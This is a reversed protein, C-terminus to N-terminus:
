YIPELDEGSKKMLFLAWDKIEGGGWRDVVHYKGNTVGELVWQAGDFGQGTKQSPLNWFNVKELAALLIGTDKADIPMTIKKMLKGPEYGGEGDTKKTLLESTGDPGITLRFVMPAHFSRLWLLRYTEARMITVSLSPEDMADLHKSYWAIHFDDLQQSKDLPTVRFYREKAEAASAVLLVATLVAVARMSM